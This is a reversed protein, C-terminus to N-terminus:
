SAPKCIKWLDQVPYNNLLKGIAFTNDTGWIKKVQIFINDMRTSNYFIQYKIKRKYTVLPKSDSGAEYWQNVDFPLNILEESKWKDENNLIGGINRTAIMWEVASGVAEDMEDTLPHNTIIPLTHFALDLSEHFKELIAKISYKRILNGGLEGTLLKKYNEEKSYFAKIDEPSEWLESKVEGLYQFYLDSLGTKGSKILDWLCLLSDSMLAGSETILRFVVDYQKLSYLAMIFCLGRIECYEEFTITDTGVCVEEIEFCKQRDYEGFQHPILRFKTVMQHKNRTEQSAIDTGKLLMLTYPVLKVDNNLVFKMGEIFSEKTEYPLPVILETGSVMGRKKIETQLNVYVDHPINKRKIAALTKLNMSQLSCSVQIRKNLKESVRLIRDYNTKGLTIDFANPWDYKKWLGRIYEAIEEDREYMGFNSDVISLLVFPNKQMRVAIYELERKIRELDYTKLKKQDKETQNGEWCYACKFPCGRTTQISPSYEGTFWQDMIGAIYPSPVINLDQIQEYNGKVLEGNSPNISMMNEHPVSKLLDLSVNELIKELLNSFAIEGEGYCYFDIEPRNVLYEKCEKLDTPFEPGGAICVVSPNIKKAKKFVLRNIESNWCFNTLGVVDPQIRPIEKFIANSDDFLQINIDNEFRSQSYAAILGIGLPMFTNQRGITRHNLYGLIVKKEKNKM